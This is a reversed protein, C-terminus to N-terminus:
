CIRPLPDGVLVDVIRRGGLATELVVFGAPEGTVRGIEAADRGLPHARLAALGRAAEEAALVAVLRGECAAYLPDIGLIECAGTVAARVPLAAEALEVARRSQSALENLATAVGGRTPDRMWRVSPCADLLAAALENLPATDSALEAELELGGRAIMVALGHDGITGSVLVRDGPEVLAADLRTGARLVGVGATTVYLGDAKGREVVKTDGAVVTVSAAAAAKAMAAVIRRLDAIPFGEEIVFGASLFCPRAGAVALDNVTGNIALEGISGGPFFLPSVVYSDTTFAITSGDLEVVAADGLSALVPNGLEALFVGEVLARTAKGGAGHALTVLEDGFRRGARRV